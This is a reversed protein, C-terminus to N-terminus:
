TEDSPLRATHFWFHRISQLAAAFETFDLPKSVFSNAHRRYCDTIDAQERSTTLIIVPIARLQPDEKVADLVERGSLRPLNLDLLIVHPRPAGKCRRRLYDLAAEGDRVSIVQVDDGDQRLAEETLRVDAPNDEVLLIRPALTSEVASAVAM